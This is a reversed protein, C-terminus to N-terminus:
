LLQRSVKKEEKKNGTELVLVKLYKELLLKDWSGISLTYCSSEILNM